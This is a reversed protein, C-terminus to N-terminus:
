VNRKLVGFAKGFSLTKSSMGITILTAVLIATGTAKGLDLAAKVEGEGPM